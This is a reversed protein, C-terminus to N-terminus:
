LLWLIRITQIYKLHHNLFASGLPVYDNTHNTSFMVHVSGRSINAMSNTIMRTISKNNVATGRSFLSKFTNLSLHCLDRSTKCSTILQVFSTYGRHERGSLTKSNETTNSGMLSVRKRKLKTRSVSDFDGASNCNLNVKGVVRTKYVIKLICDTVSVLKSTRKNRFQSESM